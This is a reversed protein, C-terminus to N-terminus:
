SSKIYKVSERINHVISSIKRLGYQVILNIVHAACRVHFLNGECSLMKKLLLNGRILQIMSNNVQANDLTISFLKDEINWEQIGKLMVNFMSQANRPSEMMVFKIIRKEMKWERSIRHCTVCLYGLTQNSTWMDATLSVKSSSNNLVEKLELKADEFTRMCDSRITTRSVMKFLPNLASVFERFGDYEVISFPFEHLVIMRVLARRALGSDYIWNDLLDINASKGGARMKDVLDTLKARLKCRDLHKKLHSTGINQRGSLHDHCHMCKARVIEGDETIPEFEKWYVSRLQRTTNRTRTGHSKKDTTSRPSRSRTQTSMQIQNIIRVSPSGVACRARKAQDIRPSETRSARARKATTSSPMPMLVEILPTRTSPSGVSFGEAIPPTGMLATHAARATRILAPDPSMTCAQTRTVDRIAQPGAVHPIGVGAMAIGDSHQISTRRPPHRRRGQQPRRTLYLLWWSIAADPSQSPDM